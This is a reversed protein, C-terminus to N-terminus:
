IIDLLIIVLVYLVEFCCGVVGLFGGYVVLILVFYWWVRFGFCLMLFGFVMWLGFYLWVLLVKVIKDLLM